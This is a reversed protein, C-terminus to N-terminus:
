VIANMRAISDFVYCGRPQATLRGIKPTGIKAPTASAREAISRRGPTRRPMINSTGAVVCPLRKLCPLSPQPKPSTDTLYGAVLFRYADYFQKCEIEGKAQLDLTRAGADLSFCRKELKLKEESAPDVQREFVATEMGPICRTLDRVPIMQDNTAQGFQSAYCVHLLDPTVYVWRDHPSGARGYKKFEAGETLRKILAPRWSTGAPRGGRYGDQDKMKIENRSVRQYIEALFEKNIDGQNNCGRLNHIFQEQTIKNTIATNHLDTNLMLVAYALVLAVDDSEFVGENVSAFHQGFKEMLRYIPDAEGPPFFEHFFMRMCDDFKKNVFDLSFVFHTMVAGPLDGRSGLYQGIQAKSMGKSSMLFSVIDQLNHPAPRIFRNDTLYQLGRTPKENFLEIARELEEATPVRRVEEPARHKSPRDCCMASSPSSDLVSELVKGIRQFFDM